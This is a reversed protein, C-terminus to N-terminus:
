EHMTSSSNSDFGAWETVDVVPTKQDGFELSQYLNKSNLCQM